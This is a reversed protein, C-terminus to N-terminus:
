QISLGALWGQRVAEFVKSPSVCDGIKTVASNHFAAELELTEPSSKMGLAYIVTDAQYSHEVGGSDIGEVVNPKIETCKVGTVVTLKRELQEMLAIRHMPYSDAAVGTSMEIVTVNHGTDALHLGTECGVLGGGVMVVNRGIKEPSCYAELAQLANEIGPIAPTIPISGLALIVVDAECSKADQLTFERNLEVKVGSSFLRRALVDKYRRLDEKHVDSDTFRLLGGLYSNKEVLTVRHGRQAATIAAMMGAVGGGIVLVERSASPKQELISEDFFFAEPNVSCGFLSTLDGINDELPGPFCRYCRLCPNIDDATGSATKNVFQPDATLQRAMAVLDCVGDSILSEAHDPDNIGGVLIVPINVAKKVQAAYDANLGHPHFLSSFEGSLIPDRYVGISVHISDIYPEILKCVAATEEIGMGGEMCEDGSVRMEVLFDPGLADRVAKFVELPFRARNELSGGYEDTRRNTRSSLFQHLLWGHGAHIIIGDFGCQKMYQAAAVFNEIVSRMLKDDMATVVAGDERVYGIPGIPDKLGPIKLKSEGCHSLEIVALAGGDHIIKVANIMADYFPGELKSYDVPPFPERNAYESDIFTEGITVQAVGGKSKETVSQLLVKDLGPLVSFIGCYIPAAVVRNKYTRTGVKLPSLLNPYRDNM